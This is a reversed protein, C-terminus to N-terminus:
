HILEQQEPPLYKYLTPQTSEDLANTWVLVYNNAGRLDVFIFQEGNPYQWHEYPRSEQREMPLPREIDEPVGYKIYIRGRDTKRGPTNGHRYHEEVYEFREVIAYYDQNRWFRDLFAKKGEKPLKLFEKYDRSDLFYEIEEYYPMGEYSVEQRQIKSISFPVRKQVITTAEKDQITVVLRYDGAEIGQISLGCNVAQAPFIKEITRSIKRIERNNDDTITYIASLTDTDPIVDYLEYYFCLNQFRDDFTHSPRPIIRLDGKRLYDGLTDVTIESSLMIDSMHYDDGTIELVNTVMGSKEGSLMEVSYRYRGENLYAGFQVLFSVREKAAYSFSPITFQRYLTDVLSDPRDLNAIKFPIIASAFIINEASQYYLEGYPIECNFEAYYIDETSLVHATTDEVEISIKYVVPDAFFEIDGASLLFFLLEIM